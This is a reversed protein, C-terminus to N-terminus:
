AWGQVRVPAPGGRAKVVAAAVRDLGTERVRGEGKCKPCRETHLGDQACSGPGEVWGWGGCEPCLMTPYPLPRFRDIDKWHKAM